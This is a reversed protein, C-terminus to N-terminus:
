GVRAPRPVAAKVMNDYTTHLADLAAIVDNETVGERVTLAFYKALEVKSSSVRELCSICARIVVIEETEPTLDLTDSGASPVTFGTTWAWVLTEGSIDVKPIFSSGTGEKWQRILRVRKSGTKQEGIYYLNRCTAPMAQLPGDTANTTATKYQFWTPYLSSIAQDLYGNVETATFVAQAVDALRYGVKASLQDRTTM